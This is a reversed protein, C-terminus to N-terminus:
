GAETVAGVIILAFGYTRFLDFHAKDGPHVAFVRFRDFRSLARQTPRFELTGVKHFKDAGCLNRGVQSIRACYAAGTYCLMVMVLPVQRM